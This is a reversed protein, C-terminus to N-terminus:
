LDLNTQTSSQIHSNQRIHLIKVEMWTALASQHANIGLQEWKTFINKPWTLRRNLHLGICKVDQQPLHVNNIHVPLCTERRTTFTVHALKSENAKIRWEKLWKQVADPITQLERSSIGPDSDTALPATDDAFTTATFETSTPLDANHLLYLLPCLVSGQPVDVKVPSLETYETEVKM